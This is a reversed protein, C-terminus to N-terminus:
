VKLEDSKAAHIVINDFLNIAMDRGFKGAFIFKTRYSLQFDNLRKLIFQPKMRLKPWIRKPIGSSFPFMMIDRLEFELIVFPWRFEELRALEAEFRKEVMNQYFEGISGKREIVFIDELGVISYDGTDLKKEIQGEFM